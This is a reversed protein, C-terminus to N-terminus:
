STYIRKLSCLSVANLSLLRQYYFQPAPPKAHRNRCHRCYNQNEKVNVPTSRCVTSSVPSLFVCMNNIPQDTNDTKFSKQQVWVGSISSFKPNTGFLLRDPRKQQRLLPMFDM